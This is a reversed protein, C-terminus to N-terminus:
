LTLLSNSQKKAQEESNKYDGYSNSQDQYDVNDPMCLSDMKNKLRKYHKITSEFEERREVTALTAAL